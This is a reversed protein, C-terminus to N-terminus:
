ESKLSKAILMRRMRFAHTRRRRSFNVMTVTTRLMDGSSQVTRLGVPIRLREMYAGSGHMCVACRGSQLGKRRAGLPAHKHEQAAEARAKEKGSGADRKKSRRWEAVPKSSDVMHDAPQRASDM